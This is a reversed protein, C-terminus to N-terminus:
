SGNTVSGGYIVVAALGAAAKVTGFNNVTDSGTNGGIVIGYNGSILAATDTASGNIVEGGSLLEVGMRYKYTAQVTGYNVVTAAADAVVGNGGVRATQTLILESYATSLYYGASYAGTLTKTTM